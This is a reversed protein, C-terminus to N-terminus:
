PLCSREKLITNEVYSGMEMLLHHEDLFMQELKDTIQQLDQPSRRVLAIGLMNKFTLHLETLRHLHEAHPYGLRSMAEVFIMRSRSIVDHFNSYKYKEMADPKRDAFQMFSEAYARGERLNHALPYAQVIGTYTSADVSATQLRQQVSKTDLEYEICLFPTFGTGFRYNFPTDIAKQLHSIRVQYRENEFQDFMEYHDEDLRGVILHYHMIDNDFPLPDLIDYRLNINVPVIEGLQLRQDAFRIAGYVDGVEPYVIRAGAQAVFRDITVEPSEPLLFHDRYYVHFMQQQMVMSEFEFRYQHNCTMVNYVSALMCNYNAQFSM